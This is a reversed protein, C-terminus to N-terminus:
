FNARTWGVETSAVTMTVFCENSNLARYRIFRLKFPLVCSKNSAHPTGSGTSSDCLQNRRWKCGSNKDFNFGHEADWCPLHQSHRHVMGCTKINLVTNKRFTSPVKNKFTASTRTQSSKSFLFTTKHTNKTPLSGSTFSFSTNIQLMMQSM